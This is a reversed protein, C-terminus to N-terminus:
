APSRADDAAIAFYDRGAEYLSMAVYSEGHLILVAMQPQDEFADRVAREFRRHSSYAYDLSKQVVERGALPLADLLDGYADDGRGEIVEFLPRYLRRILERWTRAFRIAEHMSYRTAAGGDRGDFDDGLPKRFLERAAQEVGNSRVYAFRYTVVERVFAGQIQWFRDNPLTTVENAFFDRFAVHYHQEATRFATATEHINM